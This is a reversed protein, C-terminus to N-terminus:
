DQDPDLGRRALKVRERLVAKMADRPAAGPANRALVLRAALSDEPLHRLLRDINEPLEPKEPM